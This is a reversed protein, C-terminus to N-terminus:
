KHAAEYRRSVDAWNVVNWWASIYAARKNQYKLDARTGALPLALPVTTVLATSGLISYPRACLECYAHEWVDLGLIPIKGAEMAPTDQLFPDLMGCTLTWFETLHPHSLIAHPSRGLCVARVRDTVWLAVAFPVGTRARVQNATAVVKLKGGDNKDVILWAWGSGFVGAAV